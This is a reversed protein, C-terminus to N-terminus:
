SKTFPGPLVDRAPEDLVERVKRGLEAATFPKALAHVRSSLGMGQRLINGTYGSVFLFRLGPHKRLLRVALEKGSIGPMIVDTLLLDVSGDEDDFRAEAEEGNRTSIVRYGLETLIAATSQRIDDNDEALLITGGGRMPAATEPAVTRTGQASDDAELAPFLISFMTGKALASDVLIFGGAQKVIGYVTSLGLGTGSGGSGDKTTFFPEFIRDRIEEPIGSGTDSVRLRVYAGAPITAGGARGSGDAEIRDLRISIKGGRPMADRANVVLNVVIQDFQGPDIMVAPVTGSDALDLAIDERILHRVMSAMRSVVDRLDTRVPKSPAQRSYALLQRILDSARKCVDMIMDMKASLEATQGWKLKTLESFGTIAGLYNNLDHAIGGALRGVAELRQIQSIKKELELRESEAKERGAIEEKLGLNARRLEALLYGIDKDKRGRLYLHSAGLGTILFGAALALYPTPSASGELMGRSPLVTVRFVRGTAAHRVSKEIMPVGAPPIKSPSRDWAHIRVLAGGDRVEDIRVASLNETASERFTVEFNGILFGSPRDPAGQGTGGSIPLVVSYGPSQDSDILRISETDISIGESAARQLSAELAPLAGVDFYVTPGEAGAAGQYYDKHYVYREGGASMTGAAIRRRFLTTKAGPRSDADSPIIWILVRMDPRRATVANVIKQFDYPETDPLAFYLQRVPHLLAANREIDDLFGNIIRDASAETRLHVERAASSKIM